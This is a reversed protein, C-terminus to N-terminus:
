TDSFRISLIEVGLRQIEGLQKIEELVKKGKETVEDATVEIDKEIKTCV